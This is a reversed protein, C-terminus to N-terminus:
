YSGAKGGERSSGLSIRLGGSLTHTAGLILKGGSASTMQYQGFGVFRGVRFQVGGILSLFGSSARDEADAQAAAAVNPDTFAGSISPNVAQIIGFGGGFYPQANGKVPFAMITGSYRRIHKFSVPINNGAGDPFSSTEKSGFGEDVSLLLGTRKAVILIQGGFTPMGGRNQSPTEFILVGAQAGIFWQFADDRQQASVAPGSLAIAVLAASFARISLRM